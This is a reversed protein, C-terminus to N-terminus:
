GNAHRTTQQKDCGVAVVAISLLTIVWTKNNMTTIKM